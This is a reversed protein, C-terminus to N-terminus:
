LLPNVCSDCTCETPHADGRAPTAGTLRDIARWLIPMSYEGDPALFVDGCELRVGKHIGTSGFEMFEVETDCPCEFMDRWGQAKFHRNLALLQMMPDADTLPQAQIATSARLEACEATLDAILCELNRVREIQAPTQYEEDPLVKVGNIPWVSLFGNDQEVVAHLTDMTGGFGYLLGTFCLAGNNWCECKRM